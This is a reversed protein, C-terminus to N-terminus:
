ITWYVYNYQILSVTKQQSTSKITNGTETPTVMTDVFAVFRRVETDTESEFNNLDNEYVFLQPQSIFVYWKNM